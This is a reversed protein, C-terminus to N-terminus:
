CIQLPDKSERLESSVSSSCFVLYVFNTWILAPGCRRKVMDFSEGALAQIYRVGYLYMLLTTPM